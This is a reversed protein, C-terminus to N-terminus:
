GERDDALGRRRGEFGPGRGAGAIGEARCGAARAEHDPSAPSRLGAPHSRHGPISPEGWGAAQADGPWSPSRKRIETRHGMERTIEERQLLKRPNAASKTNATFRRSEGFSEELPIAGVKQM